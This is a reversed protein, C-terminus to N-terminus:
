RQAVVLSIAIIPASPLVRVQSSCPERRERRLRDVLKLVDALTGHAVNSSAIDESLVLHRRGSAWCPMAGGIPIWGVM